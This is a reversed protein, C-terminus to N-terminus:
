PTMARRRAVMGWLVIACLTPGLGGAVAAAIALGSDARPLHHLIEKTWTLAADLSVVSALLIGLWMRFRRALLFLGVLLALDVAVWVPQMWRVLFWRGPDVTAVLVTWPVLLAILFWLAVVPGRLLTRAAFGVLSGRAFAALGDHLALLSPTRPPHTLYIPQWADPRLKSKFAHLGRFDYLPTSLDRVRRMWGSVPGALPALGLTLYRCGAAAAARMAADVLLEATGNPADPERLLDEVFWGGRAYIPVAALFGVVRGDVSAVFTRREPAFAYPQVDVLFGMPAMSRSGLWRAILRDIARRLPAEPDALTAPDVAAITVGKAAARRLQYRLTRSAAVTAPWTSPDWSPQEGVHLARLSAADALDAEAAFFSARRGAARAAAIFRAAVAGIADRAAIPDGAAVWASGTDVYAVCASDPASPAGSSGPGPDFWYRFGDELVQFSTANWGHQRLLALVRPRPDDPSTSMM